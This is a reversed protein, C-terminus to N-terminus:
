RASTSSLACIKNWHDYTFINLLLIEKKTKGTSIDAKNVLGDDIRKKLRMM